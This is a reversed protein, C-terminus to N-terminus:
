SKPSSLPDLDKSDPDLPRLGLKQRLANAEDRTLHYIYISYGIRAAPKLDQFYTFEPRDQSYHRYGMIQNISLAFWGAQPGPPASQSPQIQDESLYGPVPESEIGAAEPSAVLSGFREFYFPRAQPNADYWQKLFLIDQAWDINSDLLYRHGRAPGGCFQNFFSVPHPFVSLTEITTGAACASVLLTMLRQRNMVALAVRSTYVYAFPAFPLAYRLYRNFGTQSSVLVIVAIAPLILALESAWTARFDKRLALATALGFLVLSGIPTKFGYAALYYHWWGGLKQEGCLYSWAGREFDTRQLDIGTVYREPLPVPIQGLWTGAFRNGGQPGSPGGCLARSVFRFEGLPKLSGEFAYGLNLLYIAMALIASLQVFSPKTTDEVAKKPSFRISICHLLWVLPLVAFLIIWTGKTLEAIGLTLGALGTRRWTPQQLWRWFAYAALIGLASGAADPTISAGWTILNPCFCYLWCALLGSLNGYLDRAWAFSAWAGLLCFPICAWRALTFYWFVSKGNALVFDRGVHFETRMQPSGGRWSHWDATYHTVLVPLSATMRVLPPNVCYLDFRGYTWNSIGAALHAPEDLNPGTVVGIWSLLLAHIALTFAMVRTTLRHGPISEPETM